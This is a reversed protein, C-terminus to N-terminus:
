LPTLNSELSALGIRESVFLFDNGDDHDNWKTKKGKKKAKGQLIDGQKDVAAALTATKHAVFDLRDVVVKRKWEEKAKRVLEEELAAQEDGGLHVSSFFDPTRVGM